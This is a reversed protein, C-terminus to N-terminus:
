LRRVYRVVYMRRKRPERVLFMYGFASLLSLIGGIVFVTLYSNTLDIVFGSLPM